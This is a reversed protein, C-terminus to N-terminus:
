GLFGAFYFINKHGLTLTLVSFVSHFEWHTLPVIVRCTYWQGSGWYACPFWWTQYMDSEYQHILERIYNNGSLKEQWFRRYYQYLTIYYLFGLSVCPSELIIWKNCVNIIVCLIYTLNKPKVRNITFLTVWYTVWHFPNIIVM